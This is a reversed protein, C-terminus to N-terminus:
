NGEVLDLNIADDNAGKNLIIISSDRVYPVIGPKSLSENIVGSSFFGLSSLVSSEM